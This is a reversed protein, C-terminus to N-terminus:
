NNESFWLAFTKRFNVQNVPVYLSLVQKGFCNLQDILLYPTLTIPYALPFTSPRLFSFSPFYSQYTVSIVWILNTTVFEIHSWAAGNQTKEWYHKIGSAPM